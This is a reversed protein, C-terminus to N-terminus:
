AKPKEPPPRRFAKHSERQFDAIASVIKGADDNKGAKLAAELDDLMGAFKKMGAAYDAQFKARDAEPLDSAKDPTMKETGASAARIEALLALSDANKAPEAVQRRLKRWAANIKEMKDGLETHKEAHKDSHKEEAARAPAVALLLALCSLILRIKM